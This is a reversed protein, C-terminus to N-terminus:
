FCNLVYGDGHLRKLTEPVTGHWWQWDYEDKPFRHTGKTQILTSDQKIHEYTELWPRFRLVGLTRVLDFAAIRRRRSDGRQLLLQSKHNYRAVLLSKNVTRWTTKEPEKQSAPTFFSVVAQDIVM